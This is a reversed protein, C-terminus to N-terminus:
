CTIRRYLLDGKPEDDKIKDVDEIYEGSISVSQRKGNRLNYKHIILNNLKSSSEFFKDKLLKMTPLIKMNAAAIENECQAIEDRILDM